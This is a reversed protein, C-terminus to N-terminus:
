FRKLIESVDFCIYGSNNSCPGPDVVYRAQGGAETGRANVALVRRVTRRCCRLHSFSPTRSCGDALGVTAAEM